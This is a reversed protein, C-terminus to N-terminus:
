NSKIKYDISNPDSSGDIGIKTEIAEIADNVNGHLSAHGAM